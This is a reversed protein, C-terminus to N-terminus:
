QPPTPPVESTRVIASAMVRVRGNPPSFQPVSVLLFSGLLAVPHSLLRCPCRTEAETGGAGHVQTSAGPNCM